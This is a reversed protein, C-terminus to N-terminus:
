FVDNYNTQHHPQPLNKEEDNLKEKDSDNWWLGM